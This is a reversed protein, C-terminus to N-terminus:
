DPLSCKLVSIAEFFLFKKRIKEVFYQDYHIDKTLSSVVLFIVGSKYLFSKAEKLFFNIIESGKRGGTTSRRSDFDEREDEPLYPPNFIIVDFKGQVNEFLDSPIVFFGKKKCLAISEKHIECGTINEKKVGVKELTELQIGSGVGIELVKLGANKKLLPPIEKELVESLLLSDETPNYVLTM